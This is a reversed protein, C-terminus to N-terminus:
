FGGNDRKGQGRGTRMVPDKWDDRSHALRCFGLEDELKITGKESNRAAVVELRVGKPATDDYFHPQHLMMMVDLDQEIAGSDRADSARPARIIGTENNRNLQFVLIVPVGLRGAMVKVARTIEGVASAKTDAEPLRMLGLYDIVIMDLQGKAKLVRAQAEIMEISVDPNDFIHFPADRLRKMVASMKAWDDENMLKPHKLAGAAINGQSCIVRGMWEKANMEMTWVAVHKGQDVAVSEAICKALISKGMKPRAGIGYVRGPELGGLLDDLAPLGTSLGSLDSEAETREVMTEYISKLTANISVVDIARSELVKGVASAAEGIVETSSKGEPSFGTNVIETGVEILRRLQFKERVIEAYARINAASPTSSSLEILYGAGGIQESLNHAEFWEGLTVPDIPKEKELQDRMARYILRHDRRYFMEERILDGVQLLSEPVLMAAGLVAQEAETSQPPVRLTDLKAESRQFESRKVTGGQAEGLSAQGRDDAAM